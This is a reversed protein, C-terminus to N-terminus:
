ASLDLSATLFRRCRGTSGREGRPAPLPPGLSWREAIRPQPQHTMLWTGAALGAVIALVLVLLTARFVRM